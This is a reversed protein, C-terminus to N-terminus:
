IYNVLLNAISSPKRLPCADYGESKLNKAFIDCGQGRTYIRKPCCQEIYDIAQKFDAHDSLAFQVDTNFRQTMAFGTAVATFIRRNM